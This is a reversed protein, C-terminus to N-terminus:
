RRRMAPGFGILATAAGMLLLVLMSPGGIGPGYNLAWVMYVAGLILTPIGIINANDWVWSFSNWIMPAARTGRVRRETYYSAAFVLLWGIGLMLVLTFAARATDLIGQM